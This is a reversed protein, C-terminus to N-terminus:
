TATLHVDRDSPRFDVHRAAQDPVDRDSPRCTATLHVSISM